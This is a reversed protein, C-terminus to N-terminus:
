TLHWGTAAIGSANLSLRVDLLLLLLSLPTLAVQSGKRQLVTNLRALPQALEPM